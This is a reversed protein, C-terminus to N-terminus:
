KLKWAIAHRGTIYCKRRYSEIIKGMKRLEYVRPTVTNIPWRLLSALESNTFGEQQSYETFVDVVQEQKRGMKGQVEGHYAFLSTMRVDTKM